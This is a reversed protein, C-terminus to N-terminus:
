KDDIAAADGVRSTDPRKQKRCRVGPPREPDRSTERATFRVVPEEHGAGPTVAVIQHYDEQAGEGDEDGQHKQPRWVSAESPPQGVSRRPNSAPHQRKTSDRSEDM